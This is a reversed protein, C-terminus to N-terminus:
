GLKKKVCETLKVRSESPQTEKRCTFIAQAVEDDSKRPFAEKMKKTFYSLEHEQGSLFHGDFHRKNPDDAM